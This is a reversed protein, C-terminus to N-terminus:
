CATHNRCDMAMTTARATAAAVVAKVFIAAATLPWRRQGDCRPWCRRGQAGGGVGEQKRIRLSPAPLAPHRQPLCCLSPLRCPPPPPILSFIPSCRHRCIYIPTTMSTIYYSKHSLLSDTQIFILSCIFGDGLVAVAWRQRGRVQLWTRLQVASLQLAATAVM